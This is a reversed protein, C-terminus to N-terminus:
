RHPSRGVDFLALFPQCPDGRPIKYHHASNSRLAESGKIHDGRGHDGLICIARYEGQTQMLKSGLNQIHHDLM